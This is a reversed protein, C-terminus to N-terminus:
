DHKCAALFRERDFKPNTRECADAFARAVVPALGEMDASQGLEAITAAIFSFHRHQLEVGNRATSIDKRNASATKLAM